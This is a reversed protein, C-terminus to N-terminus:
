VFKMWRLIELPKVACAIHILFETTTVKLLGTFKPINVNEIHLILCAVDFVFQM